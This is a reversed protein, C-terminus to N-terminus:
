LSLHTRVTWLEEDYRSHFGSRTGLGPLGGHSTGVVEVVGTGVAAGREAGPAGGEGGWEVMLENRRVGKANALERKPTSKGLCESPLERSENQKRNLQCRDM